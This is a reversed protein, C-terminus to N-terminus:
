SRSARWCNSRAYEDILPENGFAFGASKTQFYNGIRLLKAQEDRGTVRQDKLFVPTRSLLAGNSFHRTNASGSRGTEIAIKSGRQIRM